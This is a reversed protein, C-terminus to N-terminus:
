CNKLSELHNELAKQYALAAESEDTFYGLFILNRNIYVNAKWKKHQSNWSVGTYKSTGKRDKSTNHRTTVLQLNELRNDTKINNIHDVVLNLGDPKHNLFAMSVLQHIPNTWHNGNTSLTCIQYGNTNLSPRLVTGKLFRTRGHTTHVIRDISRVRGFSSAQYYGEYGPIDKWIEEKM